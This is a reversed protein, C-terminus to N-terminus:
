AKIDTTKEKDISAFISFDVCYCSCCNHTQEFSKLHPASIWTTRPACSCQWCNIYVWVLTSEFFRFAVCCNLHLIIFHFFFYKFFFWMVNHIDCPFVMVFPRKANLKKEAPKIKSIAERERRNSIKDIIIARYIANM